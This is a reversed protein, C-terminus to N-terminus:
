RSCWEVKKEECVGQFGASGRTRGQGFFPHHQTQGLHDFVDDEDTSRGDEEVFTQRRQLDETVRQVGEDGPGDDRGSVRERREQLAVMPSKHYLVVGVYDQGRMRHSAYVKAVKANPTPPQPNPSPSGHTLCPPSLSSPGLKTLRMYVRSKISRKNNQTQPPRSIAFNPHRIFFLRNDTGLTKPRTAFLRAGM